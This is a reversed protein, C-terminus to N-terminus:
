ENGFLTNITYQDGHIGGFESWNYGNCVMRVYITGDATIKYNRNGFMKILAMRYAKISHTTASKM